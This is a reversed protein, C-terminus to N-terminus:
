RSHLEKNLLQGWKKNYPHVEKVEKGNRYVPQGSNAWEFISGLLNYVKSYGSKSLKECYDASRYGVSCYVIIMSDKDEPLKVKSKHVAGEIHSVKYEEETRTDILLFSRQENRYQMLKAVIIHEVEPYKDEIESKIDQWNLKDKSSCSSILCSLIIVALIHYRSM